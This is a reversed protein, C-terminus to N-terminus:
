NMNIARKVKSQRVLNTQCLTLGKLMGEPHLNELCSGETPGKLPFKPTGRPNNREARDALLPAALSM